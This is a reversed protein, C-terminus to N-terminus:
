QISSSSYAKGASSLCFSIFGILQSNPLQCRQKVTSLRSSVTLAKASHSELQAGMAAGCRNSFPGFAPFLSTYMLFWPSPIIKSSNSYRAKKGALHFIQDSHICRAGGAVMVRNAVVGVTNYLSLASTTHMHTRTHGEEQEQSKHVKTLWSRSASVDKQLTAERLRIAFRLWERAIGPNITDDTPYREHTCGM